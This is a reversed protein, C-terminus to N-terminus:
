FIDSIFKCLITISLKWYSSGESFLNNREVTKITKKDKIKRQLMEYLIDHTISPYFKKIDMKLCYKTEEPHKQLVKFLDYEVKHIGRNRISSYTQDIFISTWIPEMINM